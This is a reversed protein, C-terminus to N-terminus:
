VFDRRQQFFTDVAKQSQDLKLLTNLRELAPDPGFLEVTEEAAFRLKRYSRDPSFGVTEGTEVKLAHELPLNFSDRACASTDGNGTIVEYLM